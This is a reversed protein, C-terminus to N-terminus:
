FALRAGGENTQFELIGPQIVYRNEIDQEQAYARIITFLALLGIVTFLIRKVNIGEVTM